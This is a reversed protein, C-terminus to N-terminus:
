RLREQPILHKWTIFNVVNYALRLSINWRAAVQRIGRGREGRRYFSRIAIVEPATLKSLKHNEGQVDPRPLSRQGGRHANGGGGNSLNLLGAPCIYRHMQIVYIEYDDVIKQDVTEPFAHIVCFVHQDFGYKELSRFLLPQQRCKLTRYSSLRASLRKTQGIYARGSPSTLRYILQM